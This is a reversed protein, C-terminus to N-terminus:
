SEVAMDLVRAEQSKTLSQHHSALSRLSQGICFINLEVQYVHGSDIGKGHHESARMEKVKAHLGNKALSSMKFHGVLRRVAAVIKEFPQDVGKEIADGISLNLSHASCGINFATPERQVM